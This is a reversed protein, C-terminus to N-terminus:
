SPQTLHCRVTSRMDLTFEDFFKSRKKMGAVDTELNTLRQLISLGDTNGFQFNGDESQQLQNQHSIYDIQDDLKSQLMARTVTPEILVEAFLIIQLSSSALTFTGKQAM